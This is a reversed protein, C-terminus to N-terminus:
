YRVAEFRGFLKIDCELRLGFWAELGCEVCHTHFDEGSVGTSVFGGDISLLTGLVTLVLRFM